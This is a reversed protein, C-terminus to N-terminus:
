ASPTRNFRRAGNLWTNLWIMDIEKSCLVYDSYLKNIDADHGKIKILADFTHSKLSYAGWTGFPEIKLAM